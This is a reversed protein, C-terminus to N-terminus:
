GGGGPNGGGGGGGPGKGGGGGGQGGGGQGGGKGGGPDDKRGTPSAVVGLGSFEENQTM